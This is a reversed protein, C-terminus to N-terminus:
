KGGRLYDWAAYVSAIHLAQSFEGNFIRKRVEDADMWEFDIEESDDLARVSTDTLDRALFCHIRNTFRAPNAFPSILPTWSAALHGTEEKLERQGAALPPEGPEVVGCPIERCISDGAHRYQRTTLVRGTSDIAVVHVSDKQEVVYFPDLIRGSPLECADARLSIWKDRHIVRSGVTKWKEM